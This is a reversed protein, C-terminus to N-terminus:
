SLQSSCWSSLSPTVPELGTVGVVGRGCPSRIEGSGFECPKRGRAPEGEDPRDVCSNAMSRACAGPSSRHPWAGTRKTVGWVAGTCNWADPRAGLRAASGVPSPKCRCEVRSDYCASASPRPPICRRGRSGAPQLPGLDASHTALAAEVVQPRLLSRPRIRGDAAQANQLLWAQVAVASATLLRDLDPLDQARDALWGEVLEASVADGYLVRSPVSEGFGRSLWPCGRGRAYARASSFPYTTAADVCGAHVPNRHVYGLTARRYAQSHIRKGRFRGEFLPGRRERRVNFRRAYRDQVWQMAGSIDGDVSRILLHFHNAMLCYAHVETGGRRVVVALLALFFRYEWATEFLARRAVGRNLIHWWAGPYDKRLRRPM